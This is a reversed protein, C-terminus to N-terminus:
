LKIYPGTISPGRYMSVTHYRGGRISQNTLKRGSGRGINPSTRITSRSVPEIPAFAAKPERMRRMGLEENKMTKGTKTRNKGNECMFHATVPGAASSCTGEQLQQNSSVELGAARRLHTLNRSESEELARGERKRNARRIEDLRKVNKDKHKMAVALRAFADGFLKPTELEDLRVFYEENSTSESARLDPRGRAKSATTVLIRLIIRDKWYELESEM